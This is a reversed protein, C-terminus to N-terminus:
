SAVAVVDANAAEIIAKLHRLCGGCDLGAGCAVAVQKCTKAGQSVAHTISQCTVGACLCVYM